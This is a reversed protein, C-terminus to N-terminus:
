TDRKKIIRKTGERVEYFASDSNLVDRVLSGIKSSSIGLRESLEPRTLGANSEAIETKMRDIPRIISIKELSDASPVTASSEIVRKLSARRHKRALFGIVPLSVGGVVMSLMLPDRFIMDLLGFEGTRVLVTSVESEAPWVSISGTYRAMIELSAADAPVDFSATAVGASDTEISQSHTRSGSQTVIVIYLTLSVSSVPQGNRQVLVSVLLESGILIEDVIDLTLTYTSKALVDLEIADEKSNCDVANAFVSITYVGPSLESPLRISVTYNETLVDYQLYYQVGELTAMIVAWEISASHVWDIFRAHIIVTENEYQSIQSLLLLETPIPDVRIDVSATGNLHGTRQLNMDFTYNGVHLSSGGIQVLYTGNGIATISYAGVWDILYLAGPIGAMTRIDIYSFRLIVNEQAYAVRIPSYVVETPIPLVSIPILGHQDVFGLAAVMITLNHVGIGLETGSLVATWHDTDWTAAQEIGLITLTLTADPVFSSNGMEYYIYVSTEEDYYLSSSLVSADLITAAPLVILTDSYWGDAFGTSNATVTVNWAGLGIATARISFHWMMDFSSYTLEYMTGNISLFVSAGPIPVYDQTYIVSVSIIDVYTPMLNSPQWTVIFSNAALTVNLGTTIHTQMTYGYLWASIYAEYIGIEIQNGLISVRWAGSSYALSYVRSNITVNVTANDPIDGGYFTYDVVVSLSDTYEITLNSPNWTVSLANTDVESVTLIGLSEAFNYGYAQARIVITHPGLDLYVGTLSIVWFNGSEILPLTVSGDITINAIVGAQPVISGNGAYSYNASLDIRGLYDINTTSWLSVLITPANIVDFSISSNTAFEYGYKSINVTVLHHGLDFTNNLEFWYVGDTGGLTYPLGDITITKLTAGAILRGYSDRYEIELVTSQTWDLTETIWSANASTLDEHIELATSTSQSVYVDGSAEIDVIFTGLGPPDMNGSFTFCYAQASANWTLSKSNSGISMDIIASPVPSGNSMRYYVMLTTYEVFSIDNGSAWSVQITTPDKGVELTETSDQALIFGYKSATIVLNHTGFGPVIDSGNFRIGYARETANWYLRLTLLDITVNVSADLVPTANSMSYEIFLYTHEFYTISDQYPNSWRSTLTTPEQAIELSLTSDSLSDFGDRGARIVLEHYGLGPLLDSGNFMLRYTQSAEDWTLDWYYLDITVNVLALPIASGNSMTYNVVLISSGVYTITNGGSWYSHINVSESLIVLMRSNDAAEEFGLHLMYTAYIYLTFTGFGPPDMDGTFTFAYLELTDNYFADWYKTGIRISVSADVVPEGNEAISYNIYITASEVYTITYDDNAWSTQITTEEKAITLAQSIDSHALHDAKSAIVHLIYPESRPTFTESGTIAIEYAGSSSNYDTNWTSGYSVNVIASLVPSGNLYRYYIRFVTVDLYSIASSPIWEFMIYTDELRVTLEETSDMTSVYGFGSAYITVDFTAYHLRPDNGHILTEYASSSSNWVLNWLYENITANLVGTAIPSSNSMVFKVSLKTDGFHTINNGGIWSIILSTPELQKALSEASNTQSQLDAQHAVVIIPYTTFDLSGDMGIFTREYAHTGSNWVLPLTVGNITVNVTADTIWTDNYMRYFAQLTTKEVYTITNGNTWTLDLLTPIVPLIVEEDSNTQEIFGYKWAEVTLSHSGVGPVPDSGNFRLQYYGETQNWILTWTDDDITVNVEADLVPLLSGYTYEVILYAYSFFDPNNTENAWYVSLSTPERRLVIEQSSDSASVFGYRSANVTVPFAGLSPLDVDGDIFLCYRQATSNWLLPWQTGAFVAIVTAGTIASSNSNMLYRISLICSGTYTINNSPIWEVILTTSENDIVLTKSDYATIFGFRSANIILNHSGLGLLDDSGSFELRYTGTGEDWTLNWTVSNATVQVLAGAIPTGNSMTYNVSLVTSGVYTITSIGVWTTNISTPEPRLILDQTMNIGNVFGYRGARVTLDHTGFGPPIDSGKFTIIYSSSGDWALTWNGTNITVNVTAGIIATENSMEYTVILTTQQVYTIDNGMSWTIVLSTPELIVTLIESDDFGDEFGTREALVTVFHAGFGLKVDTGYLTLDYTETVPNYDLTWPETGITAKVTAGLVPSGDSMTYNVILITSQTYTITSGDSWALTLSTPEERLTLSYSADEHSEHGPKNAIIALEHTGFGPNSDTGNFQIWYTGGTSNWQLRWTTVGHTVTVNASPIATSNSMRYNVTLITYEVFTINTGHSWSASFDTYEEHITINEASDFQGEYGAKWAVIQLSYSGFGSFLDTGNFTIRYLQLEDDWKLPFPTEDITVSVNADAVATGGVRQYEVLLDTTQVFSINNGNSWQIALLETDHILTTHITLSQNELAYGEAYVVIMYSGPAKGTTPVSASWTGNNLDTMSVNSAGDFSYMVDAFDGDLGQPTFADQFHVRIGLSSDTFGDVQLASATLSTPYYIILNRSIYGAETGNAWLGDLRYFGNDSTTSDIDWSYYAKGSSVTVNSPSWVESGGSTVTLNVYGTTVPDNDEEKITMNIDLNALISTTSTETHDSPDYTRLEALHNFSTTRLTWAGNTMDTCRVYDNGVAYHGYNTTPDSNNYLGTVTWSPPKSINLSRSVEGQPAPYALSISANWEVIEGSNDIRWVTSAQSNKRYSLTIDYNLYVSQNTEFFLSSLDRSASTFEFTSTSIASANVDLSVEAPSAYLIPSNGTQNWPIYTYRMLAELVKLDWVTTGRQYSGFSGAGDEAGWYIVPYRAVPSGAKVLLSGDIIAWYVTNASLNVNEGPIVAWSFVSDSSTMNIPTTIASETEYNSNVVFSANGRLSPNYYLTSYYISYNVLVGNHPRNYFGQALKSYFTGLIETVQFNYNQYTVGVVEREVAASITNIDIGAKYLTWGPIHYDTLDMVTSHDIMDSYDNLISLEQDVVVRTLSLVADLQNGSQSVSSLTPLAQRPLGPQDPMEAQFPGGALHASSVIIILILLLVRIHKMEFQRLSYATSPKLRRIYM